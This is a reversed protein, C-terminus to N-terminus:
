APASKAGMASAPKRHCGTLSIAWTCSRGSKAPVSFTVM